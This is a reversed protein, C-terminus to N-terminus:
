LDSPRQETIGRPVYGAVSARRENDRYLCFSAHREAFRRADGLERRAGATM